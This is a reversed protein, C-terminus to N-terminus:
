HRETNNAWQSPSDVLWWHIKRVFACCHSDKNNTQIFQQVQRIGPTQSSMVSMHGWHLIYHHHKLRWSAWTAEIYYTITTNSVGHREHPRLTIHLPPTQSAMVSMHGWHLIYHHHKLRWSAWTAEIYYTITTNSVGHREHPRLTIHLPPTQSAMVSMHGWHLIYHHHKLRWSAWTAEIYYTITTNSVGHREHPRLTIHLPPTQSAMVSIHGWHLIYHHHKLRWSALTAEIYYTITTNSVDHREHPRLTIHLPPTQSAMVSIHGWHLIYHHHKLRWSALTAEIYYTITTNSVDHREHPRLTIHLPPTQSTM